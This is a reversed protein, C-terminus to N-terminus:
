QHNDILFRMTYIYLSDIDLYETLFVTINSETWIAWGQMLGRGLRLQKSCFHTGSCPSTPPDKPFATTTTRCATMRRWCFPCPAQILWIFSRSSSGSSASLSGARHFVLMSWYYPEESQGSCTFHWTLSSYRAILKGLEAHLLFYTWYFINKKKM